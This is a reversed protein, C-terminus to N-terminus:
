TEDVIVNADLGLFILGSDRTRELEGLSLARLWNMRSNWRQIADGLISASSLLSSRFVLIGLTRRLLEARFELLVEGLLM